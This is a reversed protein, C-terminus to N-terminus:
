FRFGLTATYTRPDNYYALQYGLSDSLDFGHTIVHQNTLNKGGLSLWWGGGTGELRVFADVITNPRQALVESSSVVTYSKSRHSVTGGITLTAFSGVDFKYNGGLQWSWNPANVLHRQASIDAGGPGFFRNYHSDLYAINANLTLGVVPRVGLELEAGRMTASGANTFLAAFNGQADAVFSSLQLDKYDNQFVALNATLKHDATSAKVGVEYSWMTEPRYAVAGAPTNARGDFGGSKFGRSASAYILLDENPKFDLGFKPSLSSFSKGTTIDTM